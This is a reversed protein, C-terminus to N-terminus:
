GGAGDEADFGNAFEADFDVGVAGLEPAVAAALDVGNGFGAGVIPVAAQEM